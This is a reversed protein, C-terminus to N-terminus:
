TSTPSSRGASLVTRSLHSWRLGGKPQRNLVIRSSIVTVSTLHLGRNAVFYATCVAIPYRVTCHLAFYIHQRLNRISKYAPKDPDQPQRRQVIFKEGLNLKFDRTSDTGGTPMSSATGQFNRQLEDQGQGVRLWFLAQSGLDLGWTEINTVCGHWQTRSLPM